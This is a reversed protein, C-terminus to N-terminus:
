PADQVGGSAGAASSDTCLKANLGGFYAAAIEALKGYTMGKGRGCRLVTGLPQAVESSTCFPCPRVWVQQLLPEHLLSTPFDKFQEPMAKMRDILRDQAAKYEVQTPTEQTREKEM